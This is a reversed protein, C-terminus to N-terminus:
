VRGAEDQTCAVGSMARMTTDTFMAYRHHSSAGIDKVSAADERLMASCPVVSWVAPLRPRVHHTCPEEM